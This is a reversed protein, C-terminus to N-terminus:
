AVDNAPLDPSSQARKGVMRTSRTPVWAPNMVRVQTSSSGCCPGVGQGGDEGPATAWRATPKGPPRVAEMKAPCERLLAGCPLVMKM